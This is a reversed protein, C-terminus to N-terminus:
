NRGMGGQGAQSSEGRQGPAAEARLGEGVISSSSHRGIDSGIDDGSGPEHTGDGDRGSGPFRILAWLVTLGLMAIVAWSMYMRVLQAVLVADIRAQISDARIASWAQAVNRVYGRAIATAGVSSDPATVSMGSNYAAVAMLIDGGFFDVLYRLYATGVRLSANPHFICEESCAPPAHDGKCPSDPAFERWTEPMLQMLGRAGRWSVFDPQFGSEQQMIAATLAPDVGNRLSETNAYEAFPLNKVEVRGTSYRGLVRLGSEVAMDLVHASSWAIGALLMTFVLASVLWRRGTRMGPRFLSVVLVIPSIFVGLVATFTRFGFSLATKKRRPASRKPSAAM